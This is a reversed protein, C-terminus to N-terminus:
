RAIGEYKYWRLLSMNLMYTNLLDASLGLVLVLGIDPLLPIGLLRAVVTMVSMAAISTVTMSVGTRMARGASEYFDGHRKLVHNNLLIDSDVSYGIIMLLAAVTGLTLDIGLINMLAVPIMIDSFASAVIALSPVLSRFILAVLVSMGIFAVVVAILAQTQSDSGFTASRVEVREITYGAEEAVDRYPDADTAQTEIIYSSDGGAGVTRASRVSEVELGANEFTAQVDSSSADASLEIETGGTFALGLGVPTGTLIYFAAIVLLAAALIALPIAALQRNSYEEYPLYDMDVRRSM